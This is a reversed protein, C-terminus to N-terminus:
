IGNAMDGLLFSHVNESKFYVEMIGHKKVMTDFTNFFMHESYNM